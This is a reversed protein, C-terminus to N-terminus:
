KRRKKIKLQRGENILFYEELWKIWKRPLPKQATQNHVFVFDDPQGLFNGISRHSWILGSVGSFYEHQFAGRLVPKKETREIKSSHDFWRDVIKHTKPDIGFHEDGFPYVARVAHPMGVDVAQLAFQGASIAVICSDNEGIIGKERYEQFKDAKELLASTIRLEVERRPLDKFEDSSAPFLDPVRDLNKKGDGQAPAIAEIWINRSCKRICIDPGTDRDAGALGARSRLKKRADLFRVTLYMEWFRSDPQKAFEERFHSDAYPGYNPWLANLGERIRAGDSGSEADRINRYGQSADPVNVDFLGM